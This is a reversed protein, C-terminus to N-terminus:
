RQRRAPPGPKALSVIRRVVPHTEPHSAAYQRLEAMIQAYPFRGGPCWTLNVDRHRKVMEPPIHYESMLRECLSIISRVQAATPVSPRWHPNSRASFAGIVCIGIWDNHTRAHAGPCHDPRGKQITGDPLIVYHYPIHYTKGEFETAWGPHWEAYIRELTAANLPVGDVRAPTDSHHLVIGPPYPYALPLPASPPAPPVQAHPSRRLSPVGVAIAILAAIGLILTIRRRLRRRRKRAKPTYRRWEGRRVRKGVGPEGVEQMIGDRKAAKECARALGADERNYQLSM